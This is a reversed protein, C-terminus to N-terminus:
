PAIGDAARQPLQGAGQKHQNRRPRPGPPHVTTAKAMPSPQGLSAGDIQAALAPTDLSDKAM